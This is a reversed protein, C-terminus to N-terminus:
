TLRPIRPHYFAFMGSFAMESTQREYLFYWFVGIFHYFMYLVHNFSKLFIIQKYFNLNSVKKLNTIIHLMIIEPAHYNILLM